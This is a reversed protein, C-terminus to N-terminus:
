SRVSSTSGTPGTARSRSQLDRGSTVGRSDSIYRAFFGLTRCRPRPRSRHLKRLGDLGVKLPGFMGWDPILNLNSERNELRAPSVMRMYPGGM